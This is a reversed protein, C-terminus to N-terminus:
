PNAPTQVAAHKRALLPDLAFRMRRLYIRVNRRVIIAACAARQHRAPLKARLSGRRERQTPRWQSGEGAVSAVRLDVVLRSVLQGHHQVARYTRAETALGEECRRGCGGCVILRPMWRGRCATSDDMQGDPSCWRQTRTHCFGCGREGHALLESLLVCGRARLWLAWSCVM